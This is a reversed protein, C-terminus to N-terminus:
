KEGGNAKWEKEALKYGQRIIEQFDGWNVRRDLPRDGVFRLDPGEKNIEFYAITWKFRGDPSWLCIHHGKTLELPYLTPMEQPRYNIIGWKSPGTRKRPM